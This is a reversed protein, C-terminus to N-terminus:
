WGLVLPGELSRWEGFFAPPVCSSTRGPPAVAALLPEVVRGARLPRYGHHGGAIDRVFVGTAAAPETGAADAGEEERGLLDPENLLDIAFEVEELPVQGVVFGVVDEVDGQIEEGAAPADLVELQPASILDVEVGQPGVPDGVRGGGAVETVAEDRVIDEGQHVRDILHPHPDPGLLRRFEEGLRDQLGIAADHGAIGFAFPPHIEGVVALVTVMRQHDRQGVRGLREVQEIAAAVAGGRFPRVDEQVLGDGRDTPRAEALDRRRPSVLNAWVACRSRQSSAPSM